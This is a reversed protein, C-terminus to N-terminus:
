SDAFCDGTGNVSHGLGLFLEHRSKPLVQAAAPNAKKAKSKRLPGNEISM